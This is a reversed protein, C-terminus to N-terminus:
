EAEGATAIARGAGAAARPTEFGAEEADAEADEVGEHMWRRLNPSLALCVLGSAIAVLCIKGFVDAYLGLTEIPPPIIQPGDGGESVGTLRAILGARHNSFENALFWGGWVTCVGRARALMPVLSLGVASLCLEGTNHLLYGILV